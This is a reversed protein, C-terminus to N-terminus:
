GAEARLRAFTDPSGAPPYPVIMRVPRVPYRDAAGAIARLLAFSSMISLLRLRRVM